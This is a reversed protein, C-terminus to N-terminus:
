SAIALKFPLMRNADIAKCDTSGTAAERARGLRGKQVCNARETTAAAGSEAM